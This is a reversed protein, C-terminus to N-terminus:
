VGVPEAATRGNGILEDIAERLQAYNAGALSSGNFREDDSVDIWGRPPNPAAALEAESEFATEAMVLGRLEGHFIDIRYLRDNHMYRYRSKRIEHAPLNALILHEERSLYTNTIIARTFDRPQDPAPEPLVKQTLKQVFSGDPLHISRLRFRTGILYRDIIQRAEAAADHVAIRVGSLLFRKEREVRAYKSNEISM